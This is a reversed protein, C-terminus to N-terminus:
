NGDIFAGLPQALLGAAAMGPMCSSHGRRM